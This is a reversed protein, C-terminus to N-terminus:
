TYRGATAGGSAWAAETGGLLGSLGFLGAFELAQRRGLAPSSPADEQGLQPASLRHLSATASRTIPKVSFSLSSLPSALLSVWFSLSRAARTMACTYRDVAGALEVIHLRNDNTAAKDVCVASADAASDSSM